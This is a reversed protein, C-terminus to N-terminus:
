ETVKWFYFDSLPYYNNERDRLDMGTDSPGIYMVLLVREKTRHYASYWRNPRLHSPKSEM